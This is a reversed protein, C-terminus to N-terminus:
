SLSGWVPGISILELKTQSCEYEFSEIVEAKLQAYCPKVSYLMNGVRLQTQNPGM